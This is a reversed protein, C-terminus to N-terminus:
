RRQALEKSHRSRKDWLVPELVYPSLATALPGLQGSAHSIRRSWRDLGCETSANAPVSNVVPGVPFSWPPTKKTKNQKELARKAM